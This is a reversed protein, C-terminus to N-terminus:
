KVAEILEIDRKLLDNVLRGLDIGKAKARDTLWNRIDPVFLVPCDTKAAELCCLVTQKQQKRRGAKRQANGNRLKSGFCCCCLVAVVCSLKNKVSGVSGL